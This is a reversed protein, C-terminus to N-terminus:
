RKSLWSSIESCVLYLCAREGIGCYTIVKKDPTVKLSEYIKKLEDASKLTGDEYVMSAWPVNVAGPIHGGM